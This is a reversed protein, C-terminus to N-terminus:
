LRNKDELSLVCNYLFVLFTLTVHVLFTLLWTNSLLEYLLTCFLSFSRHKSGIRPGWWHFSLRVFVPLTIIYVHVAPFLPPLHLHTPFLAISPSLSMSITTVYACHVLPINQTHFISTFRNLLIAICLWVVSPRSRHILPNYLSSLPGEDRNMTQHETRIHWAELACRQCYYPHCSVVKTENWNIVHMQDVAHEAVASQATNGLTLARKHEKLRHELTRGTQGIYVKSCTGCPIRYVVGARQQLPTRDKLRVLTQRLTHCPRFCTRIGLSALSNCHARTNTIVKWQKTEWGGEDGAM